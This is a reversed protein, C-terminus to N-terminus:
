APLPEGTLLRYAEMYKAGTREAVDPPLAPAPPQKNWDLSELYDRVYQKDFSPPSRGPAYQDAPWFRSSDPTLVEDILLVQDGLVGFEFKTDAIIIGRTLAYAAAERYLALTLDRLLGAHNRGVREVTEDFTINEDHGTEAKHAPTFIPEDLRDAMRYGPRLRIGCVSGTSQYEKWGSGILYGRAVCEVPIVDTKKVIMSRGRLMGAHRKLPAPFKAVDTELVHHPTVHELRRFWWASLQNLVHGKRPIGTPLICDFASIRDSAVFLLRDGLDYIERVKGSRLKTCDPIDIELLAPTAM